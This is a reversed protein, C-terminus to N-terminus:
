IETQITFHIRHHDSDTLPEQGIVHALEIRAALHKTIQIRLGEGAGMLHRESTETVAPGRLRGYGADFFFVFQIQKGLPQNSRPLQWEKPIFFFPTLYEVNLVFGQDALYDGEPYGRVSHAGGLYLEEQPTLKDPSLQSSLKLIANTEYPLALGRVLNGEYKFFDPEAGARGALPNNQGSAGFLKTGFSFLNTLSTGGWRDLYTVDLGSTLIRLRDRRRVGTIDKTRSDKVDFGASITSTLRETQYLSQRISTSYTQSTANIDSSEFEKKPSVQSHSFGTILKTGHSTLPIIYQGYVVGFDSGFAFGGYLISDPIIFNNSRLTFGHRRKGTSRVGQNDFQYGAHYPFHDEVTVYVDTLGPETGPKLVAKVRRDSNENMRQISRIMDKYQLVDGEDLYWYRSITKKSFWKNGEIILAGMKGEIVALKLTQDIEQPPLYVFTIIYGRRRYEDQVLTAAANAEAMTIERGEYPAVIKELEESPISQNGEIVINTIFFQKQTAAAPKKTEVPQEIQAQAPKKELKKRAEETIKRQIVSADTSPPPENQAYLREGSMFMFLLASIAFFRFFRVLEGPSLYFKM